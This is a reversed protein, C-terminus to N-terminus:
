EAPIYNESPCDLTAGFWKEQLEALTGDAKFKDIESNIYDYLEVDEQRIAWGLWIQNESVEAVAGTEDVVLAYIDPNNMVIACASAYNQAVLDVQGNRLETYAEPFGDYTKLDAYGEGGAAVVKENYAITDAENYCSTQTAVIKGAMDAVTAISDDDARKIFVNTGSEIPHTMSYKAAREATIGLTAGVVDYKKAELGSLIGQFPLDIYNLEVGLDDCILQFLDANYGIITEGDSDMYEFPEYAAETAVSLKGAAKISDLTVPGDSSAAGSSSSGCGTLSTALLAAVFGTVIVTKLNKKMDKDEELFNLISFPAEKELLAKAIM